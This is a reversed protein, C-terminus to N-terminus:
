THLNAEGVKEVMTRGEVSVLGGFTSRGILSAIYHITVISCQVDRLWEQAQLPRDTTAIRRERDWVQIGAYLMSRIM